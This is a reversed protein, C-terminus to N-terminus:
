PIPVGLAVRMSRFDITVTRADSVIDVGLTGYCWKCDKRVDATLLKVNRLTLPSGGLSVQLEPIPRFAVSTEGFLGLQRYHDLPGSLGTVAPFAGAFEPWLFTHDSGTDLQLEVRRGVMDVGVVPLMSNFHLNPAAAGPAAAGLEVSARDSWRVAEFALVLPIGLIAPQAGFAQSDGPFVVFAANRIRFQGAKLEHALGVRVHVGNLDFGEAQMELGIRRAESEGISSFASGTDLSYCGSHGDIEVPIAVVGPDQSCKLRSYGRREVQQDPLASFAKLLAQSQSQAIPSPAQFSSAAAMRRHWDFADRYQGLRACVAALYGAAFARHTSDPDSEAARTLLRIAEPNLGFAAAVAGQFFEPPAGTQVANRLEFWRNAKWLAELDPQPPAPYLLGALCLSILIGSLPQTM